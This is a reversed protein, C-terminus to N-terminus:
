SIDSMIAPSFASRNHKQWSAQISQICAPMLAPLISGNERMVPTSQLCVTDAYTSYRQDSKCTSTSHESRSQEPSSLSKGPEGHKRCGRSCGQDHHGCVVENAMGAMGQTNKQPAAAENIGRVMRQKM